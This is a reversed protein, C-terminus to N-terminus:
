VLSSRRYSYSYMQVVRCSAPYVFCSWYSIHRYPTTHIIALFISYTDTFVPTYFLTRNTFRDDFTCVCMRTKLAPLLLRYAGAITPLMPSADEIRTRTGAGCRRRLHSFFSGTKAFSVGWRSREFSQDVAESINQRDLHRHFTRLFM